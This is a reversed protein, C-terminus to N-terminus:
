PEPIPLAQAHVSQYLERIEAESLVRDYIRAEDLTAAAFHSGGLSGLFLQANDPLTAKLQGIRQGDYFLVAEQDRITVAAHHWAAGVDPAAMLEAQGQADRVLMGFARPFGNLWGLSFEQTEGRAGLVV